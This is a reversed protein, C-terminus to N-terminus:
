LHTRQAQRRGGQPRHFHGPRRPFYHRAKGGRYRPFPTHCYGAPFQLRPDQQEQHADQLKPALGIHGGIVRGVLGEHGLHNLGREKGDGQGAAYFLTLNRPKGTKLFQDKIEIAIEEAFGAGLFGETGITDGDRILSVAEEASVIKGKKKKLAAAASLGTHSTGKAPAMEPM